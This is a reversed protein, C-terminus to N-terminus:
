VNEGGLLDHIRISITPIAPLPLGAYEDNLLDAFYCAKVKGPFLDAMLLCIAGTATESASIDLINKGSYSRLREKVLNRFEALARSEYTVARCEPMKVGVGSLIAQCWESYQQFTKGNAKPHMVEIASIQAQKNKDLYLWLANVAPMADGDICTLWVM